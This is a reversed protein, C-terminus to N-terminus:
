KGIKKAMNRFMDMGDNSQVRRQPAENFVSPSETPAAAPPTPDSYTPATYTSPAPSFSTAPTYSTSVQKEV